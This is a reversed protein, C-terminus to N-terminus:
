EITLYENPDSVRLDFDFTNSNINRVSLYYTNPAM